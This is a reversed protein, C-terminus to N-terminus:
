MDEEKLRLEGRCQVARRSLHKVFILPRQRWLPPHRSTFGGVRSIDGWIYYIYKIYTIIIIIFIFIVNLLLHKTHSVHCFLSPSAPHRSM